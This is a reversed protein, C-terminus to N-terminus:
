PLLTGIRDLEPKLRDRDNKMENIPLALFQKIRHRLFGFAMEFAARIEQETVETHVPDERGRPSFYFM